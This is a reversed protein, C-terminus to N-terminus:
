PQGGDFPTYQPINIKAFTTDQQYVSLAMDLLPFLAVAGTGEGLALGGHIVPQLGLKELATASAPERSLHSALLYDAVGAHMGVAALAAAASILGDLVIPVRYIAGGLCVGALGALDLGGVKALVDIPDNPNPQHRRIAERIVTQKRRLGENSLGAGRGAVREVPEHLLVCLVASSTTTNGIGMEGTAIIQYGQRQLQEVLRVGVGIAREAQERTMAPERLLNRTGYAVKEVQLGDCRVDTCIGIDVPVVAANAVRAMANINAIGKAMNAAVVATVSSDTQTVGEAVVGNDACLVAVCKRSLTVNSDGTIGAIQRVLQELLGLSNLPKGIADWRAKAAAM